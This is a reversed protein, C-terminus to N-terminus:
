SISAASYVLRSVPQSVLQSVSLNRSDLYELYMPVRAGSVSLASMASPCVFPVQASPYELRQSVQASSANPCEPLWPVQSSPCVLVRASLYKLVQPVRPQKIAFLSEISVFIVFSNLLKKLVNALLAYIFIFNFNM